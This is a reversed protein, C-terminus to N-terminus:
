EEERCTAGCPDCPFPINFFTAKIVADLDLVDFVCDCNVDADAVPCFLSVSPYANFFVIDIVVYIDQADLVGDRKPDGWHACICDSASVNIRITGTNSTLLGDTAEFKISDPGSYASDPTYTFEGTNADFDSFTGNFPGSLKTFTLSPGDVDFAQFRADVPVEFPVTVSSDRAVPADNIPNITIQVTASPSVTLGDRTRFTFQDNGNYDPDPQYTFAGTNADFAVLDGQLPNVQVEFTVPGPGDIDDGYLQGNVPTDEDTVLSTDRATPPDNVETVTIRVTGENSTFIADAAEFKISDPGSYEPDPTYTFAGTNADFGSLQGNFPGDNIAFTLNDGDEDSAPLYAVNKAVDEDTSWSTDRAVPPNGITFLGKTFSPTMSVGDSNRIYSLHNAPDTCTTDVEFQGPGANVDVIMNLSGTADTGPPLPPQFLSNRVYLLGVPMSTIVHALTDDFTFTGFGGPQGGKCSGDEAAYINTVEIPTLEPNGAALRDRFTLQLSTIAVSGAVTRFALPVVLGKIDVDNTVFARVEVGTENPDLDQSQVVVENVAYSTSCWMVAVACVLGIIGNRKM